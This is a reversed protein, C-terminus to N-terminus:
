VSTSYILLHGRQAVVRCILVQPGITATRLERLLRDTPWALLSLLLREDRVGSLEDSSLLHDAAHELPPLQIGGIHPISGVPQALLQALLAPLEAVGRVLRLDRELTAEHLQEAGILHTGIAVAECQGGSRGPLHFSIVTSSRRM